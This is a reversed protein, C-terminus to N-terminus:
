LSEPAKPGPSFNLKFYERLAALQMESGDIKAHPAIEKRQEYSLADKWEQFEIEFTEREIAIRRENQIRKADLYKRRAEDEPSEYNEPPTYPIGKRLIGMFFNLPPSKLTKGKQNRKLDFAFAHISDQVEIPTLKGLQVIQLLQTQGFHIDHLPSCDIQKWEDTLLVQGKDDDDTTTTNINKTDLISSSSPAADVWKDVWKDVQKRDM